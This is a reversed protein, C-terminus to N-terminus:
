RCPWAAHLAETAGVYQDEQWRGPNKDAWATFAARLKDPSWAEEQCIALPALTVGATKLAAGNVKQYTALFQMSDAIGALYAICRMSFSGDAHKCAKYLTEITRAPHTQPAQQAAAPGVHLAALAAIGLVHARKM